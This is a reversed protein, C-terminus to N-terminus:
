RSTDRSVSARARGPDLGYRAPNGFVIAAAIVRPVYERTEAPLLKLRYLHWFDRKRYGGPERAVKHLAGRVGNEGRNYSALVLMFSEEGFEVLLKSLHCAAAQSSRQADFREDLEPTVTLGCNRGVEEMLQWMGAARSRPHQAAPNFGSETYAIFGLETPLHYKRFTRDIMPWYQRKRAYMFRLNSSSTLEDIHKQLSQRFIPPVAYTEANFSRLIKRIDRDLEDVPEALEAGRRANRRGIELVKEAADGMLVELRAELEVLRREDTEQAMQEFVAQIQVDVAAKESALKSLRRHQDWIVGSLAAVAVASIVALAVLKRRWRQVRVEGTQRLGAMAGAMIVMTHGSSLGDRKQRAARIEREARALWQQVEAHPKQVLRMAKHFLTGAPPERGLSLPERGLSVPERSLGPPSAPPTPAPREAPQELARGFHAREVVETDLDDEPDGLARGSSVRVVHIEPGTSSGVRIREGGRLEFRKVQRGDVWLQAHEAGAVVFYSEHERVILGHQEAVEGDAAGLVRIQCHKASGFQVVDDDLAVSRHDEDASLYSLHIM